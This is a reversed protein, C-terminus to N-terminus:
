IFNDRILYREAITSPVFYALTLDSVLFEAEKASSPPRRHRRVPVPDPSAATPM